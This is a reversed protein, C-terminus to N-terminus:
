IHMLKRSKRLMDEYRSSDEDCRLVPNTGQSANGPSYGWLQRARETEENVVQMNVKKTVDPGNDHWEVLYQNNKMDKMIFRNGEVKYNDPIRSIVHNENVFQTRNFSVMKIKRTEGLATNDLKEIDKKPLERGTLGIESATDHGQKIRKAHKAMPKVTEEDDDFKANGFKDNKHLKEGQASFYGKAQSEVKKKFENNSNDYRLDHMGRNDNYGFSEEADGYRHKYDSLGGDHKSVESKMAKYADDNIRKSEKDGFVVPKFDSKEEVLGKRRSRGRFREAANERLDGVRYKIDM